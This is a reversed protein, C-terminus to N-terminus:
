LVDISSNAAMLFINRHAVRRRSEYACCFWDSELVAGVPGLDLAELTVRSIPEM